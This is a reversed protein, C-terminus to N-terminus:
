AQPRPTPKGAQGARGGGGASEIMMLEGITERTVLGVLRGARDVVGVAPRNKEQLLRTADELNGRDRVEPVDTDMVEVVPTDPGREKLAQIMADRTLVGELRGDDDCIPFEHQTTRILCEVADAVRGDRGLREFHTVMADANIVGQAVQRMQAAHSEAAAALYIFLAVFLLIPNGAALGLLGFLFALGQGIGAAIRTGRAYGTWRALFARLVRGGDMPFAPILNFVALFLNAYLLRAALGTEPEEFAAEASPAGGLAVLLVAAVVLNVAPGALAVVIEQAPEEPIREMRAVGGIPLLVVDPTQVGYRRAAFIHGFEHLVVCGFLLAIFVVGAVAAAPGGQAYFVGAIWLLFLLFTVHLRVVTGRVSGLTISWGM